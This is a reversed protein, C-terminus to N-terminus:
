QKFGILMIAFGSEEGKEPDLQAEIWCRMTSQFEFDWYIHNGYDTSKYLENREEDLLKFTINGSCAVIRYTSNGYFLSEFEAVEEGQLLAKYQQGDTVYPHELYDMCRSIISEEVQGQAQLGAFIVLTFLSHKIINSM